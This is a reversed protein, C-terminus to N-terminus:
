IVNHYTSVCNCLAHYHMKLMYCFPSPWAVFVLALAHGFVNVFDMLIWPLSSFTCRMWLTYFLFFVNSCLSIRLIRHESASNIFKLFIRIFVDRLFNQSWQYVFRGFEYSLNHSSRFSVWQMLDWVLWVIGICVLDISPTHIARPLSLFSLSNPIPHCSLVLELTHRDTHSLPWPIHHNWHHLNMSTWLPEYLNMTEGHKVWNVMNWCIEVPALAALCLTSRSLQQLTTVYFAPAPGSWPTCLDDYALSCTMSQFQNFRTFKFVM